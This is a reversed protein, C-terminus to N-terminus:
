AAAEGNAMTVARARRLVRGAPVPVEVATLFHGGTAKCVSVVQMRARTAVGEALARLAIEITMTHDAHCYPCDDVRVGQRVMAM